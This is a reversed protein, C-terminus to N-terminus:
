PWSSSQSFSTTHKIFDRYIHSILWDGEVKIAINLNSKSHATPYKPQKAQLKGSAITSPVKFTGKPNKHPGLPFSECGWRFPELLRWSTGPSGRLAVGVLGRVPWHVPSLGLNFVLGPCARLFTSAVPGVLFFIWTEGGALLGAWREAMRLNNHCCVWHWPFLQAVWSGAAGTREWGRTTRNHKAHVQKARLLAGKAPLGTLGSGRQMGPPQCLQCM